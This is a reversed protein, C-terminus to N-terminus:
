DTGSEGRHSMLDILEAEDPQEDTAIAYDGGLWRGLDITKCRPSCFPKYEAEGLDIKNGCIPCPTMKRRKANLDAVNGM